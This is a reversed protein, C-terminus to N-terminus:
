RDETDRITRRDLDDVGGTEDLGDLEDYGDTEDLPETPTVVSGVAARAITVVTGPAIEVEARDGALSVVTAYLGSTLMVEAGVELSAQMRSVAKQRKSAPRIILLWFLAVILIFPVLAGLEGV